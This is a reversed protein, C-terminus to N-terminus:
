FQFEILDQYKSEESNILSYAIKGEYNGNLNNYQILCAFDFIKNRKQLARMLDNCDREIIVIDEERILSFSSLIEKIGLSIIANLRNKEEIINTIM